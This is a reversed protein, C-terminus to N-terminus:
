LSAIPCFVIFFLRIIGALCRAFEEAMEWTFHAKYKSGFDEGCFVWQRLFVAINLVVIIDCVLTETGNRGNFHTTM